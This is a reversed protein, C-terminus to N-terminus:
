SVFRSLNGQIHNLYSIRNPKYEPVYRCSSPGTCLKSMMLRSAERYPGEDGEDLGARVGGTFGEGPFARREAEADKYSRSSDFM